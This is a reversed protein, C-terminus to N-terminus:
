IFEIVLIGFCINIQRKSKMKISFELIAAMRHHFFTFITLYWLLIKKYKM